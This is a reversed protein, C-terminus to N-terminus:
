KRAEPVMSRIREVHPLAAAIAQEIERRAVIWTALNGADSIAIRRVRWHMPDYEYLEVERPSALATMRHATTASKGRPLFLRLGSVSHRRARDRAQQLWILGFTLIGDITAADENPSAGLVAYAESGRHVIGRAYSGSLSRHLDASTVLSDITEDPFRDTLIQRFRICFQGRDVRRADRSPGAAIFELQTTRSHGFRIAEVAVRQQSEEAM